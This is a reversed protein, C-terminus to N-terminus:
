KNMWGNICIQTSGVKWSNHSIWSHVHTCSYRKSDRSNIRQTAHGSTPNCVSNWASPISSNDQSQSQPVTSPSEQLWPLCGQGDPAQRTDKWLYSTTLGWSSLKHLGNHIQTGSNQGWGPNCITGGEQLWPCLCLARSGPANSGWGSRLRGYCGVLVPEWPSGPGRGRRDHTWPDIWVCFGWKGSQKGPLSHDM